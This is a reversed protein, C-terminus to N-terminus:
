CYLWSNDIYGHLAVQNDTRVSVNYFFLDAENFLYDLERNAICVHTHFSRCYTHNCLVYDFGYEMWVQLLSEAIQIGVLLNM